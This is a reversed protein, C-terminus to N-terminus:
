SAPSLSAPEPHLSETHRQVKSLLRVLTRRETESLPAMLEAIVKFHNPLLEHLFREGKGTLRVSM